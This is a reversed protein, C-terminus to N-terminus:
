NRKLEDLDARVRILEERLSAIQEQRRADALMLQNMDDLRTSVAVVREQVFRVEARTESMERVMLSWGAAMSLIMTAATLLHGLHITMDLRPSTM